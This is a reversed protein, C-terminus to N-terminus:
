FHFPRLQYARWFCVSVILVCGALLWKERAPIKIQGASLAPLIMALIAGTLLGGVHGGIDIRHLPANGSGGSMWGANNGLSFLFNILLVNFIDKRLAQQFPEPLEDRYKYSVVLLVGFLGFLAGSAGASPNHLGSTSLWSGVVGGIGTLLYLVAFRGAGYFKEVMPGVMWLAYSNLGLHLLGIHIFIPTVLRFWQHQQILLYNTKAGFNILTATDSGVMLTTQLPVLSAEIMVLFILINVGLIAYMLRPQRALLAEVFPNHSPDTV